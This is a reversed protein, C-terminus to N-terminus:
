FPNNQARTVAINAFSNQASASLHRDDAWLYVSSGGPVLTLATCDLISPPRLASKTLDCVPDVLNTFGELGPNHVIATVLEDLLVLGIKRGDNVITARMSANFRATLHTLLAARDVDAHAARETGAFPTVGLDIVTALLVKAGTNALRNVQRGVETGEAEVKAILQAETQAPFNQYEALVDNAGVLVTVLDGAGLPSEIQQADIQPGLDAARAGFAARMRSTPAVVPVVGNNCEPFVLGHLSAISQVWLPNLSCALTPDTDSVVANVSYKSGNADFNTDVIVSTEDGFVVVRSARFNNTTEGGGCAAMLLTAAIAVVGLARRRLERPNLTM